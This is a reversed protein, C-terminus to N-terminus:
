KNHTHHKIGYIDKELNAIKQEAAKLDNSLTAVFNLIGEVSKLLRIWEERSVHFDLHQDSTSM